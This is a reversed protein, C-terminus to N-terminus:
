SAEQGVYQMSRSTRAELELAVAVAVLPLSLLQVGEPAWQILFLSFFLLYLCVAQNRRTVFNGDRGMFALIPLTLLIQDFFHAYPSMLFWLLWLWGIALAPAQIFSRSRKLMIVTLVIATLVGLGGLGLRLNSGASRVYLGALSSIDPEQTVDRSYRLMGGFWMALSHTGTATITAAVGVLTAGIFGAAVKMKDRAHFLIILIAIPLAVPPKMWAFVLLSGAAYPYRRSLALAAALTFFVLEVVNGYFPGLFVQPMLLFILFPVARKRWGLHRLLILFGGAALAYLFIGWAIGIPGFGRDTLPELAWFFLPPNGVRVIAKKTTIPLGQAALMSKEAPYLQSPDYPDGGEKLVQAAGVFMALDAEYAKGNPGGKFANEASFLWLWLVLLVILPALVAYLRVRTAPPRRPAVAGVSIAPMAAPEGPAM